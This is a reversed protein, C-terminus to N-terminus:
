RRTSACSRVRAPIVVSLNSSSRRTSSGSSTSLSDCLAASASPAGSGSLTHALADVALQNGALPRGPDLLGRNRSEFGDAFVRPGVGLFVRTGDFAGVVLDLNGDQDVHMGVADFTGQATWSRTAGALPDVLAVNPPTGQGRLLVLRGGFGAIDTDVDAVIADLIGDGDFDAFRSSGGFFATGPSSGVTSQTFEAHGQADNGTNVLYRDQGDDVVLLDLRGDQTFDAAAVQYPAVDYIDDQFTFAGFGDNYLISIHPSTGPPPANGSSNVKVIDNSGDLNFDAIQSSTGFVSSAMAPTLRTSTEDSFFGGGDNILLRDELGNEYDTFYLDPGLGGSVDGVAVSCFKPPPTFAPIRGPDYAVGLWVGKQDRGQNMLIRPPESFTGATVIDLWGDGDFDALQVDRDDTADLFAPALTASRDTLVGGENMFLVNRRGGANSFPTKRVVVLDTRCDRDLDGIAFDKEEVDGTGVASAAVLRTATAEVFEVWDGARM